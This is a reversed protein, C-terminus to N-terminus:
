ALVAKSKRRARAVLGVGAFGAVIMVWTSPEPTPTGGAGVLSVGDLLAYPPAGGPGGTAVLDLINGGGTYTFTTSYLNWPSFGQTPTDIIPTTFSESGLTATISTTTPGGGNLEQAGAMYFSLTYTDGAMLGAITETFDGHFSPDSDFVMYAGGQPSSTLGNNNGNAPGALAAGGLISTEDCTTGAGATCYLVFDGTSTWGTVSTDPQNLFTSQTNPSTEFGGNTVFQAASAGWRRVRARLRCDTIGSYNQSENPKDGSRLQANLGRQCDRM